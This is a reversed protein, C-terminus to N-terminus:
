IQDHRQHEATREEREDDAAHYAPLLLRPRPLREEEAEHVEGPEEGRQEQRRGRVASTSEDRRAGRLGRAEPRAHAHSFNEPTGSARPIGSRTRRTPGGPNSGPVLRNHASLESRQALPGPRHVVDQYVPATPDVSSDKGPPTPSPLM